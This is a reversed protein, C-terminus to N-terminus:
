VQIACCGLCRKSTDVAAAAAAELCSAPLMDTGPSHPHQAGQRCLHTHSAPVVSWNLVLLGVSGLQTGIFVRLTTVMSSAMM